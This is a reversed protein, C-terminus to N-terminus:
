PVGVTVRGRGARKAEYMALDAAHVAAAFAEDGEDTLEVVGASFSLVVEGVAITAGADVLYRRLAAAAGEPSTGPMVVVLEEGGWRAVLDVSRGGLRLLDALAVLMRDGVRHGYRDNVAKFHDIDVVAISCPRAVADMARALGDRNLLGTLADRRARHETEELELGREVARAVSTLGEELTTRHPAGRRGWWLFRGVSRAGTWLAWAGDPPRGPREDGEPGVSRVWTRDGVEIAAADLGYGALSHELVRPILVDLQPDRGMTAGMAAHSINSRARMARICTDWLLDGTAIQDDPVRTWAAAQLVQEAGLDFSGPLLASIRRRLARAEDPSGRFFLAIEFEGIQEVEGDPPVEDLILGHLEQMLVRVAVPGERQWLGTLGLFSAVYVILDGGGRGATEAAEALRVRFARRAAGYSQVEPM